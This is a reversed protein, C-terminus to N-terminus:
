AVTVHDVVLQGTPPAHVRSMDNVRVVLDLMVTEGSSYFMLAGSLWRSGRAFLIVNHLPYFFGFLLIYVGEM